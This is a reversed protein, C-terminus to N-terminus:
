RAQLPRLLRPASSPEPAAAPGSEFRDLVAELLPVFRHVQGHRIVWDWLPELKKWGGTYALHRSRERLDRHTLAATCISAGRYFDRSAGWYGDELQGATMRATRFVAHRTDYRDWDCNTIRGEGALRRELATGPYPTMIHFTDTEIGRSVAWDVTRAFVSPDDGDMGFVFAGYRKYPLAQPM